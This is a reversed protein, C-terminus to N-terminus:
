RLAYISKANILAHILIPAFITEGKVYSWSLCLGAPVYQFFSLVLALPSYSGIHGIIHILAFVAISVLYAAWHAHSYLTRFVLGRYFCEEAIPVLIVTGVAMMYWNGLSLNAILANNANSFSPDLMTICWEVAWACAYYAVYGLIVAQCFYAPHRIIQQFSNGIFRHFILLVSLFNILYFTFNLETQTLQHPLLETFVNLISSLFLLQFLLYFWGLIQEDRSPSPLSSTRKM